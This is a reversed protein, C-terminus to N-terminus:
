EDTVLYAGRRAMGDKYVAFGRREMLTTTEQDLEDFVLVSPGAGSIVAPWGVSRLDRMARASEPMSDARYDQHLREETARMLLEPYHELALVLMASRSANFAADVHPVKEPLVSRAKSTLLQANPVLLTTKVRTPIRAARAKKGEKWTVVAGGFIAPAANDPHGEFETALSLLFEDDILEPQDVLGRVLLLGAVVAAASSGLGRGQAISNHCTLDFGAEPLGAVELARKLAKVILHTEGKPLTQAGEGIIRVKTASTTLRVSVEDWINHAMGMCDFGPGLNGSTAPVRVRAESHVLRM